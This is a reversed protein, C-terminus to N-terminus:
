LQGERGVSGDQEEIRVDEEGGGDEEIRGDGERDLVGVQDGLNPVFTVLM